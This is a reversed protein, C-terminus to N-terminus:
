LDQQEKINVMWDNAFSAIDAQLKKAVLIKGDEFRVADQYIFGSQEFVLPFCTGDATVLFEMQPDSMLDGNQTFYHALSLILSGKAPGDGVVEVCLPMFGHGADLKKHDGVKDMGDIIRTFIAQSRKNLPKM